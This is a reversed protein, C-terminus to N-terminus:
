YEDLHNKLTLFMIGGFGEKVWMEATLAKYLGDTEQSEDAFYDFAKDDLFDSEAYFGDVFKVTKLSAVLAAFNGIHEEGEEKMVEICKGEAYAYEDEDAGVYAQFNPLTKKDYTAVFAQQLADVFVSKEAKSENIWRVVVGYVTGDMCGLAVSEIYGDAVERVYMKPTERAVVKHALKKPARPAVKEDMEEEVFGANLLAKKADAETKDIVLAPISQIDKKVFGAIDNPVEEKPKCSVMMGALLLTAAAFMMLKKM